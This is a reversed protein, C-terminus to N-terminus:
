HHPPTDGRFSGLTRAAHFIIGASVIRFNRPATSRPSRNNTVAAVNSPYDAAASHTFSSSSRSSTLSRWFEFKNGQKATQSDSEGLPEKITHLSHSSPSPSSSTRGAKLESFDDHTEDTRLHAFVLPGGGGGRCEVSHRLRLNPVRSECSM